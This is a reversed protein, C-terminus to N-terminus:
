IGQHGQTPALARQAKGVDFRWMGGTKETESKEGIVAALKEFIPDSSVKSFFRREWERGEAQEKKRLERQANEIKSKEVSTTDM